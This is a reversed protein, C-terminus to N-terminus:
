PAPQPRRVTSCYIRQRGSKDAGQIAMGGGCSACRLLGSLIHRPQRQHSPHSRQREKRRAQAAAFIEPAFIALEPVPHTIWQDPPKPRSVRRGTDPHKMMRSRNWVLRGGYLENNLIGTGRKAMGNIASAQGHKGRPAPVGERNLALDIDRPTAGAVYDAYIRRVVKAEAEVIVREGPKGTVAAYCYTLGGGALGRKVRGEGARRINNANDERYLQGILGRLGVMVTNVAGEHIAWSIGAFTLRKYIGAIDEM